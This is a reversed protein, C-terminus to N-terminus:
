PARTLQTDCNLVSVFSTCTLGAYATGRAKKASALHEERSSLGFDSLRFSSEGEGNVLVNELKIDGHAFGVQHVCAVGCIVSRMARPVVHRPPDEGCLYQLLTNTALSAQPGFISPATPM